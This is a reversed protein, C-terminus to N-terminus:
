SITNRDNKFVLYKDSSYGTVSDIIYRDIEYDIIKFDFGSNKINLIIDKSYGPLCYCIPVATQYDLEVVSDDQVTRMWLPLYNRDRLGLTKIRKRWLSISAPSKWATYSDGAFIFDSDAPAYFPNPSQWFPNIETFPGAYFSNNQDVTIALNSNNTKINLPLIKNNPELPDIVEIYIVEYVVTSTGTLQAKATKIEGLILRKKRHNKAMMAAIIGAPKTEIGAYVLMKLEKQIGFNPDEARYIYEPTFIATNGLFSQLTTRQDLKLFPKVILNSYLEENPTIVELTFERDVSDFNIIDTATIVFKYKKDFTTNTNDFTTDIHDFTIIGPQNASGYQNVKGILEGNLNLNIGPPLNGSKIRYILSTNPITTTAKVFLNCILNAAIQGLNSNTYWTIINDVTGLITVTFTRRSRGIEIHDSKFEMRYAIATFNYTQSISTQYPVVGFIEGNGIDFVMGPPLQSITGIGISTNTPITITLSPYITLVYETDISTTQINTITYITDDAIISIIPDTNNDPIIYKEIYNKLYVKDTLLPAGSTKKIRIKNTGLRNEENSNPTAVAQIRPNIKDLEYAIPNPNKDDYVDLKFIHYNSARKIGLNKPTTWIPARVFTADATFTGANQNNIGTTDAKFYDDGVVYIKFTRNTSTDGDSVKITFEYFRNLKRPFNTPAYFDFTTSEYLFSDYGNISTVGFDYAIYDFINSDYGASTINTPLTLAPQIFGVIRGLETLILGPPLEGKIRTYKLVQGAATDNDLATLQFDIYTSDLVYFQNANAIALTGASTQWIPDDSGEVTILFTRDSIDNGLKARLVFKFKTTRSVERASGFIRDKKIRLGDPLKGAIVHFSLISSDDFDSTYNVPLAIDVLQNEQITSFQYGSSQTWISLSM